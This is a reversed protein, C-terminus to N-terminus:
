FIMLHLMGELVHTLTDAICARVMDTGLGEGEETMRRVSRNKDRNVEEREREREGRQEGRWRPANSAEAEMRRSERM